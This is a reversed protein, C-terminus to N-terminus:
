CVGNEKLCPSSQAQRWYSGALEHDRTLREALSLTDACMEPGGKWGDATFYESETKWINNGKPPFPGIRLTNYM